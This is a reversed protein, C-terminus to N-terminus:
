TPSDGESPFAPSPESASARDMFARWRVSMPDTGANETLRCRQPSRRAAMVAMTGALRDHWGRRRGDSRATVFMSVWVVLWGVAVFMVAAAKFVGTASMGVGTIVALSVVPLSARRWSRAAGPPMIGDADAVGIGMALKGVTRGWRAVLVPEYLAAVILAAM